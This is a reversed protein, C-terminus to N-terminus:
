QIVPNTVKSVKIDFFWRNKKRGRESEREKRGEKKAGERRM